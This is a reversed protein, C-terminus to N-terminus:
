KETFAMFDATESIKQMWIKLLEQQATIKPDKQGFQPTMREVFAKWTGLDEEEAILRYYNDLFAAAHDQVRTLAYIIKQHDTHLGTAENFLALLNLWNQLKNNSSKNGTFYPVDSRKNTKIGQNGFSTPAELYSLDKGDERRTNIVQLSV